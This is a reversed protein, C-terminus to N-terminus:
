KYFCCSNKRGEGWETGLSPLECNVFTGGRERKNIQNSHAIVAAWDRIATGRLIIARGIRTENWNSIENPITPRNEAGSPFGALSRTKTPFKEGERSRAASSHRVVAAPQKHGGCNEVNIRRCPGKRAQESHGSSPRAFLALDTPKVFMHQRFEHRVKM